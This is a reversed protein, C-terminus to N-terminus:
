SKGVAAQPVVAFIQFCVICDRDPRQNLRWTGEVAGGGGDARLVQLRWQFPRADVCRASGQFEGAGGAGARLPIAGRRQGPSRTAAKRLLTLARGTNGLRLHVIGATDAVAPNDPAREVAREAYPLAGEADGANWLLWALNNLALVNDPEAEVIAAYQEKAADYRKETLDMNGLVARVRVDDPHMEVWGKLTARGGEPDGALRQAEALKLIVNDYPRIEAAKKFHAVADAPRNERIAIAGELEMVNPDEPAVEKLEAALRKATTMDGQQTALSALQYKALQFRASLKLITELETRHGSQDGAAKYARALLFHAETSQPQKEVLRKMVEVADGTRGAALRGQGVIVMLATNDPNLALQGEVLDLARQPEGERLHFQALAIRPALADAHKDIYADLREKAKETEGTQYELQAVRLLTRLHDPNQELAEHLLAM